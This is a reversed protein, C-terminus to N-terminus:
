NLYDDLNETKNNLSSNDQENEEYNKNIIYNIKNISDFDNSNNSNSNNSDTLSITNTQKKDDQNSNVSLNNNQIENLLLDTPINKMMESLKGLTDNNTYKNKNKTINNTRLMKKENQKNKLKKKLEERYIKKENENMDKLDKQPIESLTTNSSLKNILNNKDKATMKPAKGNGMTSNLIQNILGLDVQNMNGFQELNNGLGLNKLLNPDM